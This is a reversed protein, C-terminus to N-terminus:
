MIVVISPKVVRISTCAVGYINSNIKNTFIKSKIQWDPMDTLFPRDIEHHLNLLLSGGRHLLTWSRMTVRTFRVVSRTMVHNDYELLLTFTISSIGITNELALTYILIIRPFRIESVRRLHWKVIENIEKFMLSHFNPILKFTILIFINYKMHWM